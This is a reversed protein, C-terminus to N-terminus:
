ACRALAPTTETLAIPVVTGTLYAPVSWELVAQDQPAERRNDGRMALAAWVLLVLLVLALLLAWVPLGKKREIKIEAM